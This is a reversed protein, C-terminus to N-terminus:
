NIFEFSEKGNEDEGTSFEKAVVTYDAVFCPSLSKLPTEELQELTYTKVEM